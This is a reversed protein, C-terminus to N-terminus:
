AARIGDAIKEAIMLTLINTNASPLPPMVSADAVTLGDIGIVSGAPDVVAGPDDRDGMRCTGSAHWVGFVSERVYDELVAEHGVIRALDRGGMFSRLM